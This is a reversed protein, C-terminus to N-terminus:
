PAEADEWKIHEGYQLNANAISRQRTPVVLVMNPREGRLYAEYTRKIVTAWSLDGEPIPTEHHGSGNVSSLRAEFRARATSETYAFRPGLDPFDRTPDFPV